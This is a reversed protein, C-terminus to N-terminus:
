VCGVHSFHYENLSDQVVKTQNKFELGEFHVATHPLAFGLCRTIHPQNTRNNPNEDNSYVVSTFSVRTPDMSEIQEAGLYIEDDLGEGHQDRHLPIESSSWLFGDREKEGDRVAMGEESGSRVSCLIAM